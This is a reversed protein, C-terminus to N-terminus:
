NRSCTLAKGRKLCSFMVLLICAVFVETTWTKKKLGQKVTRWMYASHTDPATFVCPKTHFNKKYVTCLNQCIWQPTPPDAGVQGQGWMMRSESAAAAAHHRPMDRHRRQALQRCSVLNCVPTHCMKSSPVQTHFPISLLCKNWSQFDKGIGLPVWTLMVSANQM